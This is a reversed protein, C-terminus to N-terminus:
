ELTEPPRGQQLRLEEECEDVSDDYREALNPSIGDLERILRGARDCDLDRLQRNILGPLETARGMQVVTPWEEPSSFILSAQDIAPTVAELNGERLRAAAIALWHSGAVVEFAREPLPEPPTPPLALAAQEAELTGRDLAAHLQSRVSLVLLEAAQGANELHRLDAVIPPPEVPPAPVPERVSSLAFTLASELVSASLSAAETFVGNLDESLPPPEPGPEESRPHECDNRPEFYRYAYGGAAGVALFFLAWVVPAVRRSRKLLASADPRDYDFPTSFPDSGFSGGVEIPHGCESCVPQDGDTELTPEAGLEDDISM